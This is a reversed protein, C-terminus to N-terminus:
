HGPLGASGDPKAGINEHRATQQEEPALIQRAIDSARSIEFELMQAYKRAADGLSPDMALLHALNTMAELPNNIQHALANAMRGREASKEAENLAAQALKRESIDRAIKSAGIVVGLSNRIPSITLSVDLVKGSKSIRHTEYHDIRQNAKLKRLIDPEESQLDKPILQLVSQGVIESETYEFLREAAGNWSTIIGNLDKGIIADNSSEVIAALRFRLEDAAKRSAIDRIIESSGIGNGDEDRIPSIMVSVQVHHGDQHKRETEYHEIREGACLKRLIEPEQQQLEQPILTLVSQGVMETATYGFLREAAANWSTVTGNLDKSLIADDSSEVIAALYGRPYARGTEEARTGNSFM